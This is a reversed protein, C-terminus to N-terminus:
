LIQDFYMERRGDPLQFFLEREPIFKEALEASKPGHRNRACLPSDFNAVPSRLFRLLHIREGAFLPFKKHKKRCHWCRARSLIKRIHPARKVVCVIHAHHHASREATTQKPLSASYLSLSLRVLANSPKINGRERRQM